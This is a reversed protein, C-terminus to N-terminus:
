VRQQASAKEKEEIENMVAIINNIYKLSKELEKKNPQNKSAKIEAQSNFFNVITTNGNIRATQNMIKIQEDFSKSNKEQSDAARKLELRTEKLEQRQLKLEIRQLLITYIIGAFALGSFLANVIGFSDGFTGRDSWNDINSYIIIPAIILVGVIILGSIILPKFGLNKNQNNKM